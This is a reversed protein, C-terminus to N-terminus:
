PANWPAKEEDRVCDKQEGSIYMDWKTWDGKHDDGWIGVCCGDPEMKCCYRCRKLRHGTCDSACGSWEPYGANRLHQHKGDRVDSSPGGCPLCSTLSMGGAAAGAGADTANGAGADGGGGSCMDMGPM